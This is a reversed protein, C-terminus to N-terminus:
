TAMELILLVKLHSPFVRWLVEFPARQEGLLVTEFLHDASASEALDVPCRVDYAEGRLVLSGM